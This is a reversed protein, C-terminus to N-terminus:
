KDGKWSYILSPSIVAMSFVKRFVLLPSLGPSGSSDLTWNGSISKNGNQVASFEVQGQVTSGDLCNINAIGGGHLIFSETGEVAELLLVFAVFGSVLLRM